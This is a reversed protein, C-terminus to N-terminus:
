LGALNLRSIFTPKASHRIRFENLKMHFDTLDGRDHLDRLDILLNVALGYEKPKKTKALEEIKLWTAPIRTALSDLYKKRVAADARDKEEKAIRAAEAERHERDERLQLKIATLERFTRRTPEDISRSLAGSERQFRASLEYAVAAGNSEVLRVLLRDKEQQPLRILWAHYDSKSTTSGVLPPSALAAAALLDRDIEFLEVFAEQSATLSGLGPPIPPEYDEDDELDEDEEADEDDIDEDDKGILWGLYLPRLDGQMLEARISILSSLMGEAFMWGDWSEVYDPSAFNIILHEPTDFFELTEDSYYDSVKERSFLSIPVRIKLNRTGWNAYYLFADFYKRMWDNPNGKFDGWEYENVFSTSTIDARTSVRRLEAMEERSLARDVARFEYHQFESM